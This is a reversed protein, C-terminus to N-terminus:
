MLLRLIEPDIHALFEHLRQAIQRVNELCAAFGGVDIAREGIREINDNGVRTISGALDVPELDRCVPFLGEGLALPPCTDDRLRFSV